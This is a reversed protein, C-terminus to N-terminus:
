YEACRETVGRRPQLNTKITGRFRCPLKPTDLVQALGSYIMGGIRKEIDGLYRINKRYLKKKKSLFDTQYIQYINNLTLFQGGLMYQTSVGTQQIKHYIIQRNTWPRSGTGQLSTSPFHIM